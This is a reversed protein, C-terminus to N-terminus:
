YDRTEPTKTTIKVVGAAGDPGFEKAAAAGKVVEVSKIRDPDIGDIASRGDAGPPVLKGNVVYLPAVGGAATPASTPRVRLTGRFPVGPVTADPSSVEMQTAEGRDNVRVRFQADEGKKSWASLKAVGSREDTRLPANPARLSIWVVNLSDPTAKGPSLKMVDVSAITTPDLTAAWAPGAVQVRADADADLRLESADASLRARANTFGLTADASPTDQTAHVIKGSADSVFWARQARGTGRALAPLHAAIAARVAAVDVGQAVPTQASPAVSTIATIPVRAAPKLGTPHPAECAAAALGAGLAALGLARVLALRPRRTTMTRIRRELATTATPASLAAALPLRARSGRRAVDLLLAGYAGVDPHRRLVRRDCDIEVALRLRRLQWWLAPNWPALAVAVAAATLLQPDRAALHAREHALMLTIHREDLSLAWTPLVIRGGGENVAAPGADPSVLVEEGAVTAPTWRRAVARLRLRSLGLWGLGLLAFAAWAALLPRDLRAWDIAPAADAPRETARALLAAIAAAADREATLPVAAASPAAPRRAAIWAAAPLALTAAMAVAWVMRAGRGALRLARDACAAAGALIVGLALVYLMWLATM